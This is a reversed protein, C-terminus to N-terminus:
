CKIIARCRSPCKWAPTIKDAIREADEIKHLPTLLVAFEDGGLRAVLDEERLQARVRDAVAVL